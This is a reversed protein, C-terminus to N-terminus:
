RDDGEGKMVSRARRDNLKDINMQAVEDLSSGLEQATASLYWLVDGCEKLLATRREPTIVSDEDRWTKKVKEWVEGAEGNVSGAVYVLGIFTGAEPYRMNPTVTADFEKFELTQGKM